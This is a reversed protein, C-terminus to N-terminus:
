GGGTQSKEKDSFEKKFLKTNKNHKHKNDQTNTLSFPSALLDNTNTLATNTKYKNSRKHIEINTLSSCYLPNALLDHCAAVTTSNTVFVM